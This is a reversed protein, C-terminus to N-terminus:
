SICDNRFQFESEPDPHEAGAVILIEPAQGQVPAERISAIALARDHMMAEIHDAAEPIPNCVMFGDELSIQPPCV